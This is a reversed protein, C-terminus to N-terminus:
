CEADHDMMTSIHDMDFPVLRCKEHDRNPCHRDEAGKPKIASSETEAKRSWREVLAVFCKSLFCQPCGAFQAILTPLDRDITRAQFVCM